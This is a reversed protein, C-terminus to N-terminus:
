SETSTSIDVNLNMLTISTKYSMTLLSFFLCNLLWVLKLLCISGKDLDGQPIVSESDRESIVSAEVVVIAELNTITNNIANIAPDADGVAAGVTEGVAAGVAEGGEGNEATGVEDGVSAENAEGGAGGVERAGDEGVSKGGEIEDVGVPEGVVREPSPLHSNLLSYVAM